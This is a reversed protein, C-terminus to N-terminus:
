YRDAMVNPNQLSPDIVVNAWFKSGDKRYRWGEKEFRGERRATDLGIQPVGPAADERQLVQLFAPRHDRAAQLGIL